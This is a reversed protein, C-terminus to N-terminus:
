ENNTKKINCVKSENQYALECHRSGSSDARLHHDMLISQTLKFSVVALSRHVLYTILCQSGLHNLIAYGERYDLCPLTVSDACMYHYRASEWAM